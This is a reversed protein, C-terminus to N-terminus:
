DWVVIPNNRRYTSGYFRVLLIMFALALVPGALLPVSLSVVAPMFLKHHAPLGVLWLIIFYVNIVLHIVYLVVTKWIPREMSRKVSLIGWTFKVSFLGRSCLIHLVTWMQSNKPCCGPQMESADAPVFGETLQNESANPIETLMEISNSSKKCKQRKSKLFEQRVDWIIASVSIMVVGLLAMVLSYKQASLAAAIVLLRGSCMILHHPFILFLLIPIHFFPTKHIHRRTGRIAGCEPRDCDFGEFQLGSFAVGIM